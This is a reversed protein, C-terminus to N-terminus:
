TPFSRSNQAHNIEGGAYTGGTNSNPPVNYRNLSIKVLAATLQSLKLYPTAPISRFRHGSHEPIPPRSGGSDGAPISRFVCSM